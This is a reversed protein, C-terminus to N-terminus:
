RYHDLIWPSHQIAEKDWPDPKGTFIVMRADPPLAGYEGRRSKARALLRPPLSVKTNFKVGKCLNDKYGYVGDASTWGPTDGGLCYTIWGQDSGRYGANSALKPSLACDFTDWVRQNTGARLMFMSACLPIGRHNPRWILFDEPRDWLPTLDGTVVIDLDMVVFREGAQEAFWDSFVKLRRFCSPGTPWTPNALHSADNWLPIVEIASDLGAADDTVCIFRHPEPYHREVMRRTINVNEATFISRYGPKTWKFTVISLM